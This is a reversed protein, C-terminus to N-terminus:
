AQVDHGVINHVVVRFAAAVRASTSCSQSIM